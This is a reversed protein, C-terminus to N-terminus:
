SIIFAGGEPSIPRGHSTPKGEPVRSSLPFLTCFKSRAQITNRKGNPKQIATHQKITCLFTCKHIKIHMKKALTGDAPAARTETYKKELINKTAIFVQKEGLTICLFTSKKECPDWRSPSGKDGYIKDGFYKEDCHFGAKGGLTICLITCKKRLPGMPQPSGKDGNHGEGVPHKGAASQEGDGTRQFYVM